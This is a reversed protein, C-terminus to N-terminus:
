RLCLSNLEFMRLFLNLLRKRLFCFLVFFLGAENKTEGLSKFFSFSLFSSFECSLSNKRAKAPSQSGPFWCKQCQEM